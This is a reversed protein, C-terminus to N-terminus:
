VYYLFNTGLGDNADLLRSAIGSRYFKRNKLKSTVRTRLFIRMSIYKVRLCAAYNFSENNKLKVYYQDFIISQYRLNIQNKKRRRWDCNVQQELPIKIRPQYRIRNESFIM